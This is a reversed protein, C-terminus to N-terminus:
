IKIALLRALRAAGRRLIEHAGKMAEESSMPGPLICFLAVGAGLSSEEGELNGALIIGPISNKVALALVGAPAKGRKTQADFSGEGTLVLNSEKIKEELGYLTAIFEVGSVIKAGCFAVLAAGIGGAAGAGKIEFVDIGFDRKVVEGFKSLGLELEEVEQPSAGKQPGYVRAAGEPGVLPNNVDSAVFFSVESIGPYRGRVDIAEIDKLSAGQPPLWKGDKDLFRFGLAHAMGLGGDVTASGGVGVVLVKCGEEIADRILEGTGVSSTVLPNRKEPPVLCYGSAQAMEIIATKEEAPLVEGSIVIEERFGEQLVAYRAKVEQGPLPGCVTVARVDAGTATTVADVTGEGGDAMPCEEIVADPFVERVGASIERVCEVATLSGKFKDPAVVLRM